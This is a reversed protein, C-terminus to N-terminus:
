LPINDHRYAGQTQMQMRLNMLLMDDNLGVKKSRGNSKKTPRTSGDRTKPKKGKFPTLALPNKMQYQYNQEQGYIINQGPTQDVYTSMSVDAAYNQDNSM